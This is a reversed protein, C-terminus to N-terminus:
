DKQFLLRGIRIMDSGEEIAIEFDNSMGMSLLQLGTKEKLEKMMKFYPRVKEINKDDFFPAICMLGVLRLNILKTIKNCFDLTEEPMIGHKSEEKGINIEVFIPMIKNIKKCEKDIAQALGISDISQIADFFRVAKAVKNSQLNGLFHKEVNPLDSYKDIAEQVRNEGIIKIGADIAEIIQEAEAHKTVAILKIEEVNRNARSATDSINTDLETLKAAIRM